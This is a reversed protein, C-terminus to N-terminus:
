EPAVPKGAIDLPEFTAHGRVLLAKVATKTDGALRDVLDSVMRHSTDYALENLCASVASDDVDIRQVEDGRSSVEIYLQASGDSGYSGVRIDVPADAPISQEAQRVAARAVNIASVTFLPGVPTM